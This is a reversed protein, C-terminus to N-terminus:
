LNVCGHSLIHVADNNQITGSTTKVIKIFWFLNQNLQTEEEM